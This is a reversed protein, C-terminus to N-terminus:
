REFPDAATLYGKYTREAWERVDSATTEVLAKPVGDDDEVGIQVHGDFLALYFPITRDSVFLRCNGSALMEDVLERYEPRNRITPELRDSIVLDHHSESEVVCDRGVTMAPLGAAPLLARFRDAREMAEIHRNVPAYPDSSESAVITADALDRVDFELADEPFWRLFPRLREVTAATELATSADEIVTEGLVTLECERNELEIWDREDLACVNRRITVRSADVCEKLERQTMSGRRYLLELIRVRVRSQTLFQLGDVATASAM